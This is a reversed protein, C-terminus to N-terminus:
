PNIIKKIEQMVPKPTGDARYLGLMGERGKSAARDILEFFYIDRGTAIQRKLHPIYQIVAQQENWAIDLNTTPPMYNTEGIEKFMKGYRDIVHQYIDGRLEDAKKVGSTYLHYSISPNVGLGRLYDLIYFHLWDTNIFIEVPYKLGAAFMGQMFAMRKYLKDPIYDSLKDGDLNGALVDIAEENGPEIEEFDPGYLQMFRDVSDFGNQRNVEITNNTSYGRIYIMPRIKIGAEKFMPRVENVYRDHWLLKGTEPKFDMDQRGYKFGGDKMCYIVRETNRYNPDTLHLNAGFKQQPKLLHGEATEARVKLLGNDIELQNNRTSLEQNGQQLGAIFDDTAKISENIKEQLYGM